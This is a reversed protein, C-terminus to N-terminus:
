NMRELRDVRQRLGEFEGHSATDSLDAKLGNIEGKLYSVDTELRDFGREIQEFQPKIEGSYFEALTNLTDEKIEERLQAIDDKTVLGRQTIEDTIVQRVDEKTALGRSTIEEAIAQKV